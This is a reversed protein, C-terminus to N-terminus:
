TNAGRFRPKWPIAEFFYMWFAVSSAKIMAIIIAFQGEHVSFKSYGICQGFVFHYKM